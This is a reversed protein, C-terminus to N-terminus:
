DASQPQCDFGAAKVQRCFADRHGASAFGAATLRFQPTAGIAAVAPTTAVIVGAAGTGLQAKIAAGAADAMAETPYRGLDAGNAPTLGLRAREAKYFALNKRVQASPLDMRALREADASMGNLGYAEALNQRLAPTGQKQQVYPELLAIAADYGGALVYSHALNSASTVDQPDDQLAERYAQQAADHQGLYDLSVGLGNLAKVDEDNVRLAAQYADRADGPRNLRLLSRGEARLLEGNNPNLAVGDEYTQEAGAEDGHASLIEGLGLRAQPDKPNHQLARQYFEAAGADDGRQRLQDGIQSLGEKGAGAPATPMISTCAALGLMVTLLLARFPVPPM